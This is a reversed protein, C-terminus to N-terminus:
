NKLHEHLYGQANFIIACLASEIDERAEEPFGRHVLWLDMAHRLLSKLYEERPIGKQWNDSARLQGDAQEQHKLMYEGYRKLALPSLFGEYDIKNNDSDRTAGSKFTRMHKPLVLGYLVLTGALFNLYCNGTFSVEAGQRCYVM